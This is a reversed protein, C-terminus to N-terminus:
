DTNNTWDEFKKITESTTIPKVLEFASEFENARITDVKMTYGRVADRGRDVIQLSDPNMRHIMRTIAVSCLQRIEDGSYWETREALEASTIESKHGKRTLHIDFIARRSALDPLPIYVRKPFRRLIARDLIWPVNTAGISLVFQDRDKFDMGDLEALMTSVVQLNAPNSSESRSITLAEIEDLFIVSPSHKRAVKFLASVKQTSEGFWKSLMDSAKADFFTADLSGATAAALLTKGTGPPGYLLIGRAGNIEITPPKKALAEFYATKIAAKTDEMGAVDEWTTKSRTILQRIQDEFEDGPDETTSKGRNANNNHNEVRTPLRASGEPIKLLSKSTQDLTEAKQERKQKVSPDLAYSAYSRMFEAAQHYYGAAEKTRNNKEAEVALKYARLYQTYISSSLDVPM